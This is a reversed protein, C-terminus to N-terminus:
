ESHVPFSELAEYEPPECGDEASVIVKKKLFIIKLQLITAKCYQTPKQWVLGTDKNTHKSHM